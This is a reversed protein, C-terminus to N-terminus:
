ARSSRTNLRLRSECLGVGVRPGPSHSVEIPHAVPGGGLDQIRRVPLGMMSLLVLTSTLRPGFQRGPIAGDTEAQVFAHCQRCWYRHVLIKLVWLYAPILETVFREYTHAPDGLREGCVPCRDLTLDLTEDVRDPRGRGRSSHGPQGGPRRGKARPEAPVAPRHLKKSPPTAVDLEATHRKLREIERTQDKVKERLERIEQELRQFRRLLELREKQNLTIPGEDEPALLLSPDRTAM